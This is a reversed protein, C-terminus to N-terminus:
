DKLELWAAMPGVKWTVGFMDSYKQNMRNVASEINRTRITLMKKFSLIVWHTLWVAIATIIVYMVFIGGIAAGVSKGVLCLLITFITAVLFPYFLAPMLWGHYYRFLKLYDYLAINKLEECFEEIHAKTIRHGFKKEAFDDIEFKSMRRNFKFVTFEDSSIPTKDVLNIFDTEMEHSQAYYGSPDSLMIPQKQHHDSM